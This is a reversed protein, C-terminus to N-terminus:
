SRTCTQAGPGAPAIARRAGELIHAVKECADIAAELSDFADKWRIVVMPDIGGEFLSAVADRSVRDGENELRHMEVLRPALDRRGRLATLAGAVQEAAGVLVDALELAQETRAEIRYLILQDAAEEALEVIDDLATALGHGTVSHLPACM